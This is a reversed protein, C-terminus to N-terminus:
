IGPHCPKFDAGQTMLLTGPPFQPHGQKAQKAKMPTRTKKGARDHANQLRRQRDGGGVVQLQQIPGPPLERGSFAAPDGAGRRGAQTADVGAGFAPCPAHASDAASVPPGDAAGFMQDCQRLPDTLSPQFPQSQSLSQASAACAIGRLGGPLIRRPRYRSRIPSYRRGVRSFSPRNLSM